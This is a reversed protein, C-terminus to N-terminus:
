GGGEGSQLERIFAQLQDHDELITILSSIKPDAARTTILPTVMTILQSVLISLPEGARILWAVQENIGRKKLMTVWDSHLEQGTTMGSFYLM